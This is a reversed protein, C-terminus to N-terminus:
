LEEEEAELPTPTGYCQRDTIISQDVYICYAHLLSYYGRSAMPTMCDDDDPFLLFLKSLLLSKLDVRLLGPRGEM